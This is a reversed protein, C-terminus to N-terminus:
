AVKSLLTSKYNKYADIRRQSESEVFDKWRGSAHLARLCLIHEAGPESWQMGTRHLRDKGVFRIGGEVMGSGVLLGRELCEKYNLLKRRTHFYNRNAKVLERIESDGASKALLSFALFFRRFNGQLLDDDREKYWASAAQDDQGFAKAATEALRERAHYIDLTQILEQGENVFHGARNWIWEAGDGLLQVVLAEQLGMRHFELTVLDMVADAGQFTGVYHKGHVDPPEENASQRPKPALWALVGLKFERYPDNKDRMRCFGGDVAVAAVSGPPPAEKPAPLVPMKSSSFAQVLETQQQRLAQKAVTHTVNEQTRLCFKTPLIEQLTELAEAYPSKASMRAIMTQLKPLMRHGDTLGLQHDLPYSEAACCDCRYRSRSLSIAGLLGNVVLPRYGKFRLSQSGCEPCSLRNGWQGSQDILVGEIVRRGTEYTWEPIKDEILHLLELDAEDGALDADLMALLESLSAHFGSMVANWVQSPIRPFRERLLGLVEPYIAAPKSAPKPKPGRKKPTNQRKVPSCPQTSPKAAVQRVKHNILGKIM